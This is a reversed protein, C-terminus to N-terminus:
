YYHISGNTVLENLGEISSKPFIEQKIKVLNGEHEIVQASPFPNGEVPESKGDKMLDKVFGTDKVSKGQLIFSKSLEHDSSLQVTDCGGPEKGSSFDHKANPM